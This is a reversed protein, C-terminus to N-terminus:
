RRVFVPELPAQPPIVIVMGPPDLNRWICTIGQWGPAASLDPESPDQPLADGVYISNGSSTAMVSTLTSPNIDLTGTELLTNCAFKTAQTSKSTHSCLVTHLPCSATAMSHYGCIDGTDLMESTDYPVVEEHNAM